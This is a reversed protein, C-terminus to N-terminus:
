DKKPLAAKAKAYDEEKMGMKAAIEKEEATLKPAAGSGGSGGAGAGADYNPAPPKVLQAENANLWKQLKEPPYDTPILNRMQDPVSKIRTENSERIIAELAAAREEVPKLRAVEAAHQEALAKFNGQEELQKQQAKSFNKLEGKYKDLESDRENLRKELATIIKLADEVSSPNYKGDSNSQGNSQQGNQQEGANANDEPPM